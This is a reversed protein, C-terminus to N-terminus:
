KKRNKLAINGELGSIVVASLILLAGVAFRISLKDIGLACSVVGTVIASVPSLIVVKAPSIHKVAETRMLWCIGVTFLGFLVLLTVLGADPTFRIRELPEGTVPSTIANLGVTLALSTLFYMTMYITIYLMIDLKKVYVGTASICIGGIIGALACLIEGIGFNMSAFSAGSFIFCGVLCIIAAFIRMLSPKKGTMFFLAFPVVAVSMKELFSYSSPTTYQLGIRQSLCALANLTSIPVAIKLYDINLNKLKRASLIIFLVASAFTCVTALMSPSFWKYFYKNIIPDMGWTATVSLLMVYYIAINSKTTTM